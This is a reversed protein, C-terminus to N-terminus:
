SMGSGGRGPIEASSGLAEGEGWTRLQCCGAALLGRLLFSEGGGRDGQLCGVNQTTKHLGGLRPRALLSLIVQIGPCGSVSSGWAGWKPQLHIPHPQCSPVNTVKLQLPGPAEFGELILARIMKDAEALNKHCGSFDWGVQWSVAGPFSRAKRCCTTPM